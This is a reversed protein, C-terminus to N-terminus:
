ELAFKSKDPTSLTYYLFHCSFEENDGREGDETHREESDAEVAVSEAL